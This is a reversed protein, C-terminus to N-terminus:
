IRHPFIPYPRPPDSSSEGLKIHTKTPSACIPTEKIQSALVLDLGGPFVLYDRTLSVQKMGIWVENSIHNM